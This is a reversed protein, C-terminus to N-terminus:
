LLISRVDFATISIREIDTKTNDRVISFTGGVPVKTVTTQRKYKCEIIGTDDDAYCVVHKKYDKIPRLM